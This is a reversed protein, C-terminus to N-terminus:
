KKNLLMSTPKTIKGFWIPNYGLGMVLFAAGLVWADVTQVVVVAAAVSVLMHVSLMGPFWKGRDIWRGLFPAYGLKALSFAATVLGVAVADLGRQTLFPGLFPLVVGLVGFYCAYFAGAQKSPVATTPYRQTMFSIAM